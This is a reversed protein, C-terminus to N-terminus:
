TLQLGNRTGIARRAAAWAAKRCAVAALAAGAAFFAAAGAFVLLVTVLVFDRAYNQFALLPLVQKIHLVGWCDNPRKKNTQNSLPEKCVQRAAITTVLAEIEVYRLGNCTRHWGRHGM